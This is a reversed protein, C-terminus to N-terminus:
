RRSATSGATCSLGAFLAAAGAPGLRRRRCYVRARRTRRSPCCCIAASQTRTFPFSSSGTRLSFARWRRRIRRYYGPGDLPVRMGLHRHWCKIADLAQKLVSLSAEFALCDWIYARVRDDSMPLLTPLVGKWIAWTLITRRHTVAKSRTRQARELPRVFTNFAALSAEESPVLGPAFALAGVAPRWRGQCAELPGAAGDDYLWSDIQWGRRAALARVPAFSALTPIFTRPNWRPDAGADGAGLNYIVTSRFASSRDDPAPMCAARSDRSLGFGAAVALAVGIVRCIHLLRLRRPGWSYPPPVRFWRVRPCPRGPQCACPVTSVGEDRLELSRAFDVTFGNNGARRSGDYDWTLRCGDSLGGLAFAFACPLACDLLCSPRWLRVTVTHCAHDLLAANLPFPDVETRLAGADVSPAWTRGARRFSPLALNPPWFM